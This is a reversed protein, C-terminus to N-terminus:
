DSFTPLTTNYNAVSYTEFTTKGQLFMNNPFTQIFVNYERASQNFSEINYLVVNTSAAFEGMFGEYLDIPNLDDPNDEMYSVLQIFAGDLKEAEDDAAEPNHSAVADAFATRADTIQELLDLIIENASEIAAIYQTVKDYRANLSNHVNGRKENITERRTIEGNYANVWTGAVTAGLILVVAGAIIGTLALPNLKKM